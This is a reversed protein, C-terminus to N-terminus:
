KKHLAVTFSHFFYILLYVFIPALMSAFTIVANVNYLFVLLLKKDGGAFKNLFNGFLIEFNALAKRKKM